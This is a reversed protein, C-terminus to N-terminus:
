RAPAPAPILANLFDRYQAQSIEYKMCWEAKMTPFPDLSGIPNTMQITDNSYVYIGDNDLKADDGGNADTLMPLVSSTTATNNTYHFANTSELTGNGDGFYPRIAPAPIYVMEIAFGRVDIDYPLTNVVGLKVDSITSTGIGLNTPERYLMAGVKLFDNTQYVDYGTPVVNNNGTMTIHKWNGSIDKYKFFVWVGDYNAQGVTSRWSNDWSVDFKVQINGPGNNLISLNTLQVNNAAAPFICILIAVLLLSSKKM